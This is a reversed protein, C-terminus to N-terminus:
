TLVERIRRTLNLRATHTQEPSIGRLSLLHQKLIERRKPSVADLIVEAVTDNCSALALCLEDNDVERLVRGLIADPLSAADELRFRYKKLNPYIEPHTKEIVELITDQDRSESVVNGWFHLDEDKTGFFHKPTRQVTKRVEQEMSLVDSLPLHQMQPIYSLVQAKKEPSLNDLVFASQSARLFRLIVCVTNADEHHALALLQDHSLQQLFGFFQRDQWDKAHIFEEFNKEHMRLQDDLNNTDIELATPRSIRM